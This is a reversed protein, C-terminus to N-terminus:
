TGIRAHGIEVRTGNDAPVPSARQQRPRPTCVCRAPPGDGAASGAAVFITTRVYNALGAVCVRTGRSSGMEQTYRLVTAVRPEAEGPEQTSVTIHTVISRDDDPVSFLVDCSCDAASASILTVAGPLSASTSAWFVMQPGEGGANSASIAVAYRAGPQLGPISLDYRNDATSTAPVVAAIRQSDETTAVISGLLGGM